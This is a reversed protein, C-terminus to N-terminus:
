DVGATLKHIPGKFLVFLIGSGIVIAAVTGFLQTLPLTEMQGAALGAILNGLAAGVFWVGMMQGVRKVPSLKTIDTTAKVLELKRGQQRIQMYRVGDLLDQVLDVNDADM